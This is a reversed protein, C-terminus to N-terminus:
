KPLEVSNESVATLRVYDEESLIRVATVYRKDYYAESLQNKIIGNSSSAHIFEGDGLYIGVHSIGKGNTNFFVLDGARLENKAVKTGEAAQGKSWHPLNVDFHKFVFMTFGSCDFGKTTSGGWKYTIGILPDVTEELNSKPLDESAVVNGLTFTFFLVFILCLSFLKRM